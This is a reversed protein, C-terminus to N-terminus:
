RLNQAEPLFYSQVNMQHLFRKGTVKKQSTQATEERRLTVYNRMRERKREYRTGEM